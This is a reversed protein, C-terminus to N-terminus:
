LYYWNRLIVTREAFSGKM